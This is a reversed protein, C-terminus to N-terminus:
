RAPWWCFRAAVSWLLSAAVYELHRHMKLVYRCCCLLLLLSSYVVCAHVKRMVQERVDAPDQQHFEEHYFASDKPGAQRVAACRIGMYQTRRDRPKVFLFHTCLTENTQRDTGTVVVLAAAAAAAAAAAQQRGNGSRGVAGRPGIM